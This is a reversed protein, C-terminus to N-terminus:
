RVKVFTEAADYRPEITIQGRRDVYGWKNEREFAAVGFFFSRTRTWESNM